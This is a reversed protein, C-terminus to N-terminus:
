NMIITALLMSSFCYRLAVVQDMHVSPHTHTHPLGQPYLLMTLPPYGPSDPHLLHLHQKASPVLLMSVAGM